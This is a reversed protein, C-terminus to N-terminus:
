DILGDFSEEYRSTLVEKESNVDEHYKRDEIEDAAKRIEEVIGDIIEVDTNKDFSVFYGDDYTFSDSDCYKSDKLTIGDEGSYIVLFQKEDGLQISLVFANHNENSNVCNMLKYLIGTEFSYKLHNLQLARDVIVDFIFAVNEPVFNTNLRM